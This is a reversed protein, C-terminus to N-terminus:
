ASADRVVGGAVPEVRVVVRSRELIGLARDVRVLAARAVWALLVVWPAADTPLQEWM